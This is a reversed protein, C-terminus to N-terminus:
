TAKAMTIFGHMDAAKKLEFKGVLRVREGQSTTCFIKPLGQLLPLRQRGLVWELPIL